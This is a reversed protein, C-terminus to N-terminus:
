RPPAQCRSEVPEDIWLHGAPEAYASGASLRALLEDVHAQDSSALRLVADAGYETGLVRIGASRLESEVRGAIAHPLHVTFTEWQRRRVLRASDCATAVAQGYARVLGGAGLLIGGFYRVVVACVDSLGRGRLVDLMPMGATGAPEGDDNSRAVQQGPGIIFASCHHRADHFDKRALTIQERAAQESDVRYVLAIFRSRRVEIDARVQAGIAGALTLYSM